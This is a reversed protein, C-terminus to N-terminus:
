VRNHSGAYQAYTGIKRMDCIKEAYKRSKTIFM